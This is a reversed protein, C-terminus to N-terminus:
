PSRHHCPFLLVRDSGAPLVVVHAHGEFLENSGCLGGYLHIVCDYDFPTVHPQYDFGVTVSVRLGVPPRLGGVQYWNEFQTSGWRKTM